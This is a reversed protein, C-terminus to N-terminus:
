IGQWANMLCVTLFAVIVTAIGGWNLMAELPDWQRVQRM